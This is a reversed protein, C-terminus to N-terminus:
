TLDERGKRLLEDVVRRVKQSDEDRCVLIADGTSVVVLGTVGVLVVPNRTTNWVLNGTADLGVVQAGDAHGGVRNGDVQPLHEGLADWSGLDSWAFRARVAHVNRSRELVAFDFSIPEVRKYAREFDRRLVRRGSSIRELVEGLPNWVEPACVRTEELLRRPTAVLMGANWLHNGSRVYRRARAADPKEVFRIVDLLSGGGDRVRLYGYATDPRTPEVGVIVISEGSSAARAARRLTRQFARPSPIHHDAPFIAIVDDPAEAAVEAAAWAVASATNRAIPELITRVGRHGRLARRTASALERVVVVRTRRPPSLTRLRELTEELPSRGDLLPVFPKPLRRRSAPWFRTGAGGALIVSHIKPM